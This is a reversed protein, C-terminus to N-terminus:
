PDKTPTANNKGVATEMQWGEEKQSKKKKKGTKELGAKNQINQM